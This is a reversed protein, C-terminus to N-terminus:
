LDWRELFNSELNIKRRMQPDFVLYGIKLVFYLAVEWVVGSFYCETKGRAHVGGNARAFLLGNLRNPTM